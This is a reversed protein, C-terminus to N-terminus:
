VAFGDIGSRMYSGLDVLPSVSIYGGWGDEAWQVSNEIITNMYAVVHATVPNFKVFISQTAIKVDVKTTAELVM